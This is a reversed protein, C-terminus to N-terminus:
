LLAVVIFAVVTGVPVTTTSSSRIRYVSEPASPGVM